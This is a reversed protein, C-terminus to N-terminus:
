DPVLADPKHKQLGAVIEEKIAEFGPTSTMGNTCVLEAWSRDNQLIEITCSRPSPSCYLIEQWKWRLSGNLEIGQPAVSAKGSVGWIRALRTRTDTKGITWLPFLVALVILPVGISIAAAGSLHLYLGVGATAVAAATLVALMVAVVLNVRRLGHTELFFVDCAFPIELDVQNPM